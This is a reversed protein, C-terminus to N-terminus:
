PTKVQELNYWARLRRYSLFLFLSIGGLAYLQYISSLNATYSFIFAFPLIGLATTWTYRWLPMPVFFALGYSLVDVPLIMRLFILTLPDNRKTVVRAIEMGRKGAKTESIITQVRTGILMYVILAGILWGLASLLAGTLTGWMKAAVPVLPFTSLPAAVVALGTISVYGVYSFIGGLELISEIPARYMEVLFGVAFFAVILASVGFVESFYSKM